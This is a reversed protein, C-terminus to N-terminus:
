YIGFELDPKLWCTYRKAEKRPGPFSDRTFMVSYSLNIENQLVKASKKRAAVFQKLRNEESSTNGSYTAAQYVDASYEDVLFFDFPSRNDTKAEALVATKCSSILARLQSPTAAKLDREVHETKKRAAEERESKATAEAAIQEASKSVSSIALSSRNARM